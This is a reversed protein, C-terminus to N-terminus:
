IDSNINKRVKLGGVLPKAFGGTISELGKILHKGVAKGFKGTASGLKSIINDLPEKLFHIPNVLHILDKPKFGGDGSGGGGSGGTDGSFYFNFKTLM